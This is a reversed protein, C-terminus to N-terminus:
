TNQLYFYFIFFFVKLGYYRMFVVVSILVYLFSRGQEFRAYVIVNAWLFINSFYPKRQIKHGTYLECLM